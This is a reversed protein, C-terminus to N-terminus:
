CSDAAVAISIKFDKIHKRHLRSDNFMERVADCIATRLSSGTGRASITIHGPLCDFSHGVISVIKM